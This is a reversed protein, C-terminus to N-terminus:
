GCAERYRDRVVVETEGRETETDRHRERDWEKRERETEDIWYRDVYREILVQCWVNAYWTDSVLRSLSIFLVCRSSLCKLIIFFSSM